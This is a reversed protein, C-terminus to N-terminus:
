KAKRKRVPLPKETVLVIKQVCRCNHHRPMRHDPPWVRGNRSWWRCRKCPDAEMQRVWGLYGGRSRKRGTLSEQVGGQATYLVESAGLREIRALPDPEALITKAAKLLRDSDDAPLLGRAPTARGTVSELQRQTFAEALGLAQANGRQVIAAVNVARTARTVNRRNAARRAARATSDALKELEAQYRDAPSPLPM